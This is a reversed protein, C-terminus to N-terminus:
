DLPFVPLPCGGEGFSSLLARDLGSREASDVCQWQVLIGVGLWLFDSLPPM